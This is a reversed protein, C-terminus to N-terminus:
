AQEELAGDPGLVLPLILELVRATPPSDTQIASSVRKRRLRLKQTVNYVGYHARRNVSEYM